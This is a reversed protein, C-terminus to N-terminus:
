GGGGTASASRAGINGVRRGPVCTRTGSERGLAPPIRRLLTFFCCCLFRWFDRIVDTEFVVVLPDGNHSLFLLFIILFRIPDLPILLLDLIEDPTPVNVRGDGIFVIADSSLSMLEDGVVLSVEDVDEVWWCDLFARCNHFLLVLGLQLGNGPDKWGYWGLGLWSRRLYL